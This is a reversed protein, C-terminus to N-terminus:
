EISKLRDRRSQQRLLGTGEITRLWAFALRVGYTIFILAITAIAVVVGSIAIIVGLKDSRSWTQLWRIISARWGRGEEDTVLQHRYSKVELYDALNGVTRFDRIDASIYLVKRLSEDHTSM